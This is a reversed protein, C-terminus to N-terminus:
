IRLYNWYSELTTESEVGPFRLTESFMLLSVPIHNYTRFRQRCLCDLIARSLHVHVEGGYKRRMHDPDLSTVTM